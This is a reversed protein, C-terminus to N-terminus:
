DKSKVRTFVWITTPRDPSSEFVKPRDRDGSVV